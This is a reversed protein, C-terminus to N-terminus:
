ALMCTDTCWDSKLVATQGELNVETLKAPALLPGSGASPTWSKIGGMRQEGKFEKGNKLWHISPTPNGAAACRFKVTNAAPVALLKKDMRDPRTWYPAVTEGIDLGGRQLRAAGSPRCPSLAFLIPAIAAASCRLTARRGARQEGADEPDEDYDEDDGSSLSDTVRITYNSLLTNSHAHRCSYVGSDEYSVNIIRLMRQGLRTRNNPVLGAGDKFWVVAQSPDEQDCPVELTDGMGLVYDELFATENPKMSGACELVAEEPLESHAAAGLSWQFCQKTNPAYKM